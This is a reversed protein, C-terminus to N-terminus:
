KKGKFQNLWERASDADTFLKLPVKPKNITLFFNGLFKGMVSDLVLASAKVMSVGDPSAFYDRAEKSISQVERADILVPYAVGKSAELRKVVTTKAADLDFKKVKFEIILIGDDLFGDVVDVSYLLEKM